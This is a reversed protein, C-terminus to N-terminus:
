TSLYQGLLTLMYWGAARPESSPLRPRASTAAKGHIPHCGERPSPPLFGHFVCGRACLLLIHLALLYGYRARRLAALLQEQAQPAIDLLTTASMTLSRSVHINPFIWRIM